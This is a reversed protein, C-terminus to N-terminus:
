GRPKVLHNHDLNRNDIVVLFQLRVQRCQELPRWTKGADAGIAVAFGRECIKGAVLGVHDQEVDPKLSAGHRANVRNPRDFLNQRFNFDDHHRHAGIMGANELSELVARVTIEDFVHRFGVKQARYFRNVFAARWHAHGDRAHNGVGKMVVLAKILQGGALAFYQFLEAFTFAIFGDGVRKINVQRRDFEVDAINIPDQLDGVAGFGHEFVRLVFPLSIQLPTRLRRGDAKAEGRNGMFFDTNAM